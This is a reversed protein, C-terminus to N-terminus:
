CYQSECPVIWYAVPEVQEKQWFRVFTVILIFGGVYMGITSEM